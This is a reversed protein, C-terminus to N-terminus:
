KSVHHGRDAGSLTDYRLQETLPACRQLRLRFQYFSPVGDELHLAFYGSDLNSCLFISTLPEFFGLEGHFLSFHLLRASFIQLDCELM